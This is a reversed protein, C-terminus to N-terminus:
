ILKVVKEESKFFRYLFYLSATTLIHWMAHAQFISEPNCFLREKDVFWCIIAATLFLMAFIFYRYTARIVYFCYPIGIFLITFGIFVGVLERLLLDFYALALNLLIISAIVLTHNFLIFNITPRKRWVLFCRGIAYFLPITCAALVGSMDLQQFFYTASAHYTFSGIFVYVQSIGWLITFSPFRTLLNDSDKKQFDKIGYDILLIGFLLYSLNSWTNVPQRIVGSFNMAECFQIIVDSREFSKWLMFYDGYLSALVALAITILAFIVLPRRM